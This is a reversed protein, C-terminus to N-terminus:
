PPDALERPAEQYEWFAFGDLTLVKKFNRASLGLFGLQRALDQDAGVLCWRVRGNDLLPQLASVDIAKNNVFYGTYYFQPVVARDPFYNALANDVTIFSADPQLALVRQLENRVATRSQLRDSVNLYTQVCYSVFIPLFVASYLGCVVAIWKSQAISRETSGGLHVALCLLVLTMSDNYYHEASGSMFGTMTSFALAGITAWALFQLRPDTNRKRWVLWAPITAAILVIGGERFLVPYLCKWWGNGINVGNSNTLFMSGAWDEGLVYPFSLFAAGMPLALAAMYAVINKWKMKLLYFTLAIVPIQAGTQKTFFLACSAIGALAAYVPAHRVVRREDLSFLVFVISLIFWFSFLPDPRVVFGWPARIAFIIGCAVLAFRVEIKFYRWVLWLFLALHTLSLALALTRGIQMITLLPDASAKAPAVCWSTLYYFLPTYGWLMHPYKNPSVYVPLGDMITRIGTVFHQEEGRISAIDSQALYVGLATTTAIAGLAAFVGLLLFVHSPGSRGAGKAVDSPKTQNYAM